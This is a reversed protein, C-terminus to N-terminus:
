HEENRIIRKALQRARKKAGRLLNRKYNRGAHFWRGIKSKGYKTHGPCCVIKGRGYARM